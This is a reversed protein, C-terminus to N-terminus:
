CVFTETSDRCSGGFQVKGFRLATRGGAAHWQVVLLLLLEIWSSVMITYITTQKTAQNIADPMLVSKCSVQLVATCCCSVDSPPVAM